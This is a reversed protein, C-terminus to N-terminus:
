NFMLHRTKGRADDKPITIKIAQFSEMFRVCFEQANRQLLIPLIRPTLPVTRSDILRIPTPDSHM